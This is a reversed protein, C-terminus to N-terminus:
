SEQEPGRRHRDRRWTHDRASFRRRRPAEEPSDRRAQKAEPSDQAVLDESDYEDGSPPGHYPANQANCYVDELREVIDVTSGAREDPDSRFCEELLQVVPVPMLARGPLAPGNRQYRQLAQPARPGSSWTVMGSFMHLVSAAWCWIDTASDATKNGALQEPAAYARTHALLEGYKLMQAVGMEGCIIVNAPKVNGHATGNEHLWELGRAVQIAVDLMDGLETLEGAEIAEDWYLGDVHEMVLYPVRGAYDMRRCALLNPHNPVSLANRCFQVFWQLGKQEALTGPSPRLILQPVDRFVDVVEYLLCTASARELQGVRYRDSLVQGSEWRSEANRDRTSTM